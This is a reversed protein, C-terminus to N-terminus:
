FTGDTVDASASAPAGPRSRADLFTRTADIGRQLFSLSKVYLVLAEAAAIEAPSQEAASLVSSTSATRRPSPSPLVAGGGGGSASRGLSGGGASSDLDSPQHPGVPFYAALKSDAFETLVFSKQGLDELTALLGAQHPGLFLFTM